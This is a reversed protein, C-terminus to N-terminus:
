SVTSRGSTDTITFRLYGMEAARDRLRDLKERAAAGSKDTKPVYALAQLQLLRSNIRENVISAAMMTESRSQEDDYQAFISHIRQVALYSACGLLALMIVFLAFTRNNPIFARDLKKM